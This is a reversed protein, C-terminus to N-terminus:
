QISTTCFSFSLVRALQYHKISAAAHSAPPIVRASIDSRARSSGGTPPFVGGRSCSAPFCIVSQKQTAIECPSFVIM